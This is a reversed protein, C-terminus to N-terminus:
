ERELQRELEAESAEERKWVAKKELEDVRAKKVEKQLEKITKFKTYRVLVDKKAQAQELAFLAKRFNMEESVKTATSVYGKDFMRDAWEHRDQARKLDAEALKIEGDITALSRPTPAKPISRSLSRPSREPRPPRHRPDGAAKRTALQQARLRAKLPQPAVVKAKEGSGKAAPAQQAQTPAPGALALGLGLAVCSLRTRGRVSLRRSRSRM